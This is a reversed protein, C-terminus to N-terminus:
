NASRWQNGIRSLPRPELQPPVFQNNEYLVGTLPNNQKPLNTQKALNLTNPTEYQVGYTCSTFGRGTPNSDAPSCPCKNEIRYWPSKTDQKVPDICRYISYNM